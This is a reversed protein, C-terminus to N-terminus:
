TVVQTALNEGPRLPLSFWFTSGQDLATRVGIEGEMADILSRAVSLGLGWGQQERVAAAESRFFPTFLSAQDDESIGIGNDVVEILLGPSGGPLTYKLARIQILGAEPTYKWANNLLNALVQSVRQPDTFITPLDAPVEVQLSQNKEAINPGLSKVVQQVVEYLSIEAPELKLRGSEVRNLDSLDSVLTAMRGVNNRIVDLFNLQTENVPGVAGQRLLDAYGKIATMPIRLEHVVVSVFKSKAQNAQQVEQHLRANDLAISAHGTLRNLFQRASDTFPRARELVIVGVPKGGRLIPAVLVAPEGAAPPYACAAFQHWADALLPDSLSVTEGTRDGTIITLEQDEPEGLALWGSDAGAGRVAWDLTIGAVQVLDLTATLQRDIQALIELESVRENLRSGTQTYLRANEIAAAAQVAFAELLELDADKFAGEQLRHDVYLVGRVQGRWRLPACLISRLENIIVSEQGAFRPDVRADTTLLGTDQEVVTRLVTRSFAADTQALDAGALGRAAAVEIQQTDPDLLLIYGREAGTLEIVADMVRNFVEDLELSASISQSVRYLMELRASKRQDDLMRTLTQLHQRAEILATGGMQPLTIQALRQLADQLQSLELEVESRTM